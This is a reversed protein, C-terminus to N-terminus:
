QVPRTMVMVMVQAERFRAKAEGSDTPAKFIPYSSGTAVVCV